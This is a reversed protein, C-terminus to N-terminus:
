LYFMTARRCSDKTGQDATANKARGSLEENVLLGDPTVSVFLTFCRSVPLSDANDMDETQMSVTDTRTRQGRHSLM